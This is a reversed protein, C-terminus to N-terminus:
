MGAPTWRPLHKTQERAAPTVPVGWAQFFPGLDKGVMKSMQIMWQDRKQEQTRPKQERPLARYEAFVKKYPEWGFQLRLQAYMALALFPDAKWKEFDPNALYKKIKQADGLARKTAEAKTAGCVTELVYMTFLNVTVEGTGEFTWDPSQHNHGIEHYFGWASEPSNLKEPNVFNPVVDLHTMIPYGAHMYGASIDADAVMREPSARERPRAALDACADMVRDWHQLIPTPDDLNRIAESPLTIIIKSTELEAWPAAHKRGRQWQQPTTHGLVFRPAEIAGEISVDIPTLASNEPVEIYVLGGFANAAQIVPKDIDFARSIEPVRRWNGLHYTRDTHAGIRLRLGKGAAQEPVRVTVLQGPRAYRGTGHWRPVRPDLKMRLPAVPASADGPFAKAAPHARVKDPLARLADRLDLALAARAIGDGPRLPRDPSPLARDGARATLQKLRKVWESDAPLARAAQMVTEGAQALRAALAKDALLDNRDPARAFADLAHGGHLPSDIQKSVRIGGAGPDPDVTGDGIALGFRTLLLNAPMDQDLTKGKNISLWGWGTYAVFAAGGGEVYKAIADADNANAPHSLSFFVAEFDRLRERWNDRTLDAVEIGHPQLSPRLDRVGVAAVRPPRNTSASWRILNALLRATDAKDLADAKFYGDHGFAIIRGKGHMAAAIVPLRITGRDNTRADAIVFANDGFACVTGPVGPSAITTVGAIIQARSTAHDAANSNDACLTILLLTAIAPTIKKM